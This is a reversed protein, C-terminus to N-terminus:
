SLVLSFDLRPSQNDKKYILTVQKPAIDTSIDPPFCIDSNFNGYKIFFFSLRIKSGQIILCFFKNNM